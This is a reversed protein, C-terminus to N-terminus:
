QLKSLVLIGHYVHHHKDHCRKTIRTLTVIVPLNLANDHDHIFHADLNLSFYFTTWQGKSCLPGYFGKKCLCVGDSQRCHAGNRCKCTYKCNIGYTNRPCLTKCDYGTYGPKCHCEDSVFVSCPTLVNPSSLTKAYILM